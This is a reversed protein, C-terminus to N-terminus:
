VSAFGGLAFAGLAFGHDACVCRNGCDAHYSTLQNTFMRTKLAYVVCISTTTCLRFYNQGM